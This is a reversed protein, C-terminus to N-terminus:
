EHGRVVALRYGLANLAAELNEIQPSFKQKWSGFTKPHIGAEAAIDNLSRGSKSALEFFHRALPHAKDWANM